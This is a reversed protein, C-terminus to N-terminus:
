IIPLKRERKISNLTKELEEKNVRIANFIRMLIKDLTTEPIILKEITRTILFLDNKADDYQKVLNQFRSSLLRSLNYNIKAWSNLSEHYLMNFNYRELEFVKTYEIAIGTTLHLYSDILAMEGFTDGRKLEGIFTEDEEAFNKFLKVKGEEIFFLSKGIEGEQFILSNPEFDRPKTLKEVIEIEEDSLNALLYVEKYFHRLKM